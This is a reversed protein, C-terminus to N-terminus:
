RMRSLSYRTGGSYVYSKANSIKKRIIARKIDNLVQSDPTVNDISTFLVDTYKGAADKEESFRVGVKYSPPTNGYCPKFNDVGYWFIVGSKGLWEKGKRIRPNSLTVSEGKEPKWLARAEKNLDNNSWSGKLPSLAIKLAKRRVEPTADVTVQLLPAYCRTTGVCVRELTNKQTLVLAYWDSDDHGNHEWQALVRGEYSDQEEELSWSDWKIM